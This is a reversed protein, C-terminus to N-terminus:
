LKKQEIQHDINSTLTGEWVGEFTRTTIHQNDSLRTFTAVAKFPLNITRQKLVTNIVVSTCSPIPVVM